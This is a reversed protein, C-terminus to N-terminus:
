KRGRAKRAFVFFLFSAEVLLFYIIWILGGSGAGYSHLGRGLLFNVGYWTMLVLIFGLIGSVALGFNTLKKSYRLHLITMYGLFTIFAWTEKPDWGWFRGWAENAWIGGLITGAGLLILGLQLLRNISQASLQDEQETLKGSAALFLHRHSVAMAFAFMSYSSVITIVHVTLWYSSRLVPSVVDLSQDVPLLNAYLMIMASVIAGSSLLSRRKQWIVFIGVCLMLVWNMFIMTEYMNAVPPRLLILARLLLGVSHYIFGLVILWNGWVQGAPKRGLIFIFGLLYLIGAFLFPQLSYYLAELRVRVAQGKGLVRDTGAIWQRIEEGAQPAKDSYDSVLKQFALSQGEHGLYPSTWVGGNVAPIVTLIDTSSLRGTMQLRQYLVEAKQEMVSPRNDKGRKENAGAALVEIAHFFPKLEKFSFFNREGEIGLTKKLGLHDVRIFPIDLFQQSHESNVLLLNLASQGHWHKKGSIFQLTEQAFAALPKIRGHNQIPIRGGDRDLNVAYASSISLFSLLVAFFVVSKKM